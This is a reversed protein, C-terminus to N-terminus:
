YEVVALPCHNQASQVIYEDAREKKAIGKWHREIM